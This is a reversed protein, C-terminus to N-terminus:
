ESGPRLGSPTFPRFDVTKVTVLHADSVIAAAPQKKTARRVGHRFRHTSTLHAAVRAGAVPPEGSDSLGPPYIRENRREAVFDIERDERKGISVRYGRHLLQLFM